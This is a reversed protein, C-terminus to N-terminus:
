DAILLGWFLDVRFPASLVSRGTFSTIKEQTTDSEPCWLLQM